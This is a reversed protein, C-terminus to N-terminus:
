QHQEIGDVCMEPSVRLITAGCEACSGRYAKRDGAPGGADVTRNAVRTEVVQDM